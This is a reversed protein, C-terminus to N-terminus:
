AILSLTPMTFFNIAYTNHMHNALFTKWSQRAKESPPKRTEPIYKAITNPCPVDSNELSILQDHIREPSWLQNDNHIRKILAITTRSVAPTGQTKIQSGLVPQVGQSAL